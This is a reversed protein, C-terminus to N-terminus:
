VCISANNRSSHEFITLFICLKIQTFWHLRHSVLWLEYFLIWRIPRIHFVGCGKFIYFYKAM